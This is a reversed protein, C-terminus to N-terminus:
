TESRSAPLRDDLLRIRGGAFSAHSAGDLLIPRGPSLTAGGRHEPDLGAWARVAGKLSTVEAVDTDGRPMDELSASIRWDIDPTKTADNWAAETM